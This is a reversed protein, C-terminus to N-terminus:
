AVILKGFQFRGIRRQGPCQCRSGGFQVPAVAGIALRQLLLGRISLDSSIFVDAPSKIGTNSAIKPCQM